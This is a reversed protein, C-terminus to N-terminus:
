FFLLVSLVEKVDLGEEKVDDAVDIGEDKVDDAVDLEENHDEQPPLIDLMGFSGM